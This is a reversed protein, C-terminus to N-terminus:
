GVTLIDKMGLSAHGPLSCIATYTGAPLTITLIAAEGPKLDRTAGITKGSMDKITLNHPTPGDNRVDFKNVGAKASLAAPVIRFDNLHVEVGDGAVPTSASSTIAPSSPTNTTSPGTQGGCAALALVGLASATIKFM